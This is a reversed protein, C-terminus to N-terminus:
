LEVRPFLVMPKEVRHGELGHSWEMDRELHYRSSHLGLARWLTKSIEPMIPSLAMTVLRLGEALIALTTELKERHEPSKALQWPARIEIFRNLSRIMEWLCELASHFALGQYAELVKLSCDKWQQQLLQDEEALTKTQPIVADCYRHLM